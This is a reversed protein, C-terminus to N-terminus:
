KKGGFLEQRINNPCLKRRIIGRLGICEHAPKLHKARNKKSETGSETHILDGRREAPSVIEVPDLMSGPVCGRQMSQLIEISESKRKM